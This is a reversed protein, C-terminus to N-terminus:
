PHRRQEIVQVKGFRRVHREENSIQAQLFATVIEEALNTGIVRAGLCLVNMRDHEVGQHATYTDHCVSAYIGPIKNATINAGIGSGCVVIGREARGDLVARAVLETTDPYDTPFDPIDVGLDLVSHGRERLYSALHQKLSFGAHDAALAVKM